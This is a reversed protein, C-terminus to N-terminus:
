DVTVYPRDIIVWLLGVGHNSLPWIESISRFETWVSTKIRIGTYFKHKIVSHFFLLGLHVPLTRSRLRVTSNRQNVKCFASM